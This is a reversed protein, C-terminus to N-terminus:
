VPLKASLSMGLSKNSMHRKFLNDTIKQRCSNNKSNSILYKDGKGVTLNRYHVAKGCSGGKDTYKRQGIFIHLLPEYPNHHINNRHNEKDM